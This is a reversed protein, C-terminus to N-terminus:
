AITGRGNEFDSEAYATEAAVQLAKLLTTGM